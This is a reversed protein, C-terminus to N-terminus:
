IGAVSIKCYTLTALEAFFRGKANVDGSVQKDKGEGTCTRVVDRAVSLAARVPWAFGV